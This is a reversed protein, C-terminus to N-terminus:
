KKNAAAWADLQKQKEAIVKEIGAAKLKSRFEALKETPDITGTELARKYQSIVNNLATVENKVPESNFTFGLAKSKIVKKNSEETLKWKDAPSSKHLYTILGNGILWEVNSYGVTMADIGPPFDVRNDAGLVYHKGEVGWLLLNAIRADTYMLNLFLMTREPNSSNSSITWLASLVDSSTAYSSPILPVFIMEQGILRSEAELAGIRNSFLYSFAKNAKVLERSNIQSTAADKNIYGAKFWSNFKKLLDEYEGTEYYNVVKLNNDFGPLVGFRDGLKDYTFYQDSAAAIGVGLPVINPENDKITKFVKDLGDINKISAVDIKYKDVLDKRMAIGPVGTSYDKVPPVGYIKGNIRASNLYDPDFLAKVDKGEKDLLSDLAIVKGAAVDSQYSKGITLYTDLKEGSSSMLNMQQQWSGISIPLIKVTTNIKEKTIKNIEDQVLQMDKPIAGLAPMAMTVEFTENTAKNAGQGASPAGSNSGENEKSACSALMGTIMVAALSLQIFKTKALM